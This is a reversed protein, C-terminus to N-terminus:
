KKKFILYNMGKILQVDMLHFNNRAFLNRLVETNLRLKHYCSIKQVWENNQREHLIDTVKVFDPFYELFCTLIRNEDSRVPIFRQEEILERTLDRFSVIFLTNNESYRYANKLLSDIQDISELHTITDGMCIILEPSFKLYHISDIFDGNIIEIDLNNSHQAIESTLQTSFDIAKVSFGLKALSVSQIGNGAGLDLAVKNSKPFICNKTFYEEQEKQRVDFDGLMWSYFSALHNEYHDKLNM